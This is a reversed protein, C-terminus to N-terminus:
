RDLEALERQRRARDSETMVPADKEFREATSKLRAGMDEMEKQRKSFEAELKQLAARAPTSERLLRDPNVVGLKFEQAYLMPAAVLLAAACTAKLLSQWTNDMPETEESAASKRM